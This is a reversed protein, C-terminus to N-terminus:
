EHDTGREVGLAARAEDLEDACLRLTRSIHGHPDWEGNPLNACNRWEAAVEKEKDLATRLVDVEAAMSDFADLLAPFGAGFQGFDSLLRVFEDRTM